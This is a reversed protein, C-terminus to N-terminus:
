HTQRLPVHSITRVTHICEQALDKLPQYPTCEAFQNLFDLSNELVPVAFKNGLELEELLYGDVAMLDALALIQGELTNDKAQSWLETFDVGLEHCLKGMADTSLRLWESYFSTSSYKIPRPLDATIAEDVDHVIARALLVGIDVDWNKQMMDLAICLAYHTTIYSHEAVTEPRLRPLGSFRMTHIVRRMRGTLLAAISLM